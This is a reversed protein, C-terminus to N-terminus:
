EVEILFGNELLVFFGPETLIYHGAIFTLSGSGGIELGGTGIRPSSGGGIALGHTGIFGPLGGEGGLMLGGFGNDRFGFATQWVIVPFPFQAGDCCDALAAVYSSLEHQAVPDVELGLRLRTIWAVITEAAVDGAAQMGNGWGDGTIQYLPFPHWSSFLRVNLWAFAHNLLPWLIPNPPLLPIPDQRHIVHRARSIGGLEVLRADGPKPVGFTLVEVDRESNDEMMRRALIWQVVGGKSHGVFVVPKDPNWGVGNLIDNQESALNFWDPSTSFAGYDRAPLNLHFAQVLIEQWSQSGLRLVMQFDPLDIWAFRNIASFPYFITTTADVWMQSVVTSFTALDGPVSDTLLELLRALFRQWCCDTIDPKLFQDVDIPFGPHGVIFCRADFGGQVDPVPDPPFPLDQGFATNDFIQQDPPVPEPAQGNYWQQGAGHLQGTPFVPYKIGDKLWSASGFSHPGGIASTGEPSFYLYGPTLVDPQDPYFRWYGRFCSRVFDVVRGCPSVPPM